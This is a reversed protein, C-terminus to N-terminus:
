ALEDMRVKIANAHATLGETEAMGIIHAGTRALREPTYRIVSIDKVFDYVSLSSMFRASGATPLVHNTGAFYDGVPESSYAGLFVAGANRVERLLEEQDQAIIELHEPAMLNVGAIAEHLDRCLFVAGYADLAKRILEGRSLQALQRDIEIKVGAALDRSDTFLAAAEHGSGHELQSLFDAAIFRAPATKDAVVAIESPGALSDIGCQGFVLRKAMNVFPGGPGVIKDVQPVTETGYAMAAIAQAGGVRYIEKLELLNATALIHPDIAGDKGPATCLVIRGVGAIMAPVACMLLSSFLPAAGAPVYIGVCSLPLVRKGLTVGDGDDHTYSARRQYEHFRRINGRALTVAARFEDSVAKAAAAIEDAGVVLRERTMEVHDFQRAFDLLAADGEARVREIIAGAKAALEPSASVSRGRLRAFAECNPAFDVIQM